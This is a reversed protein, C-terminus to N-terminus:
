REAYAVFYYEKCDNYLQTFEDRNLKKKGSLYGKMTSLFLGCDKSIFDYFDEPKVGYYDAAGKGYEFIIVPKCRKITKMGGKLVPLEAGEVDIKILSIGASEPIINDLLDTKVKIESIQADDIDYHRKRIGSYAPANVVYNFTTEGQQDYLAVSYVSVNKEKFKEKLFEFLHPLPEFAFHNGDPAYKLIEDMIEGKHCGIDICGSNHSLMRKMIKKTFIDYAINQTLPVRFLIALYKVIERLSM